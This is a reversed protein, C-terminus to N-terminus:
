DWFWVKIIIIVTRITVINSIQFPFYVLFIKKQKIAFLNFELGITKIVDNIYVLISRRPENQEKISNFNYISRRRWSAYYLLKLKM